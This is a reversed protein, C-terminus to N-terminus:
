AVMADILRMPVRGYFDMAEDLSSFECVPDTYGDIVTDACLLLDLADAIVPHEDGDPWAREKYETLRVALDLADTDDTVDLDAATLRHTRRTM